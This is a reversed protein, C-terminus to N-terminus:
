STSPRRSRSARRSRACSSSTSPSRMARARPGARTSISCNPRWMASGAGRGARPGQVVPRQRAQAAARDRGARRHLPQHARLAQVPVYLKDGGAYELVLFEATMGGADMTTLGIYRGVGYDEHVVPAGPRLDALQQIIKAPDRDTRRRRREQRAREGFLQEEAYITVAPERLTVGSALPAVALAIPADSASSSRGAPSSARASATRGCCTWCCNAGAPPNRRWCCAARRPRCNRPSRACRTRAASTSAPSHAGPDAGFDISQFGGVGRRRAPGGLLVHPLAMAAALWEEAPVCIEAPDLVPHEIDYRREEHRETCRAGPTACRPTM